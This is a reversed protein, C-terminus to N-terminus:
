QREDLLYRDDPVVQDSLRPSSNALDLTTWAEDAYPPWDDPQIRVADDASAPDPQPRYREDLVVVPDLAGIAQLERGALQELKAHITLGDREANQSHELLWDDLSARWWRKGVLGKLVGRYSCAALAQSLESDANDELEKVEGTAIGLRVAIHTEDYLFCPYPLIRHALWRLCTLGDTAVSLEHLPPRCRLVQEWALESGPLDSRWALLAKLEQMAAEPEDPWDDPLSRVAEAFERVRSALSPSGGGQTKDFVWELNHVRAIAHERIEQVLNGGIRQLQSSHLAFAVPRGERYNPMAHSRLVAALALGDAPTQAPPEEAPIDWDSLDFDVLVVEADRLDNVTVEAPEFVAAANGLEQSLARAEDPRDDIILVRAERSATM